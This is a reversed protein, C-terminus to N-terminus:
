RMARSLAIRVVDLGASIGAADVVGGFDIEEDGPDRGHIRPVYKWDLFEARMRM